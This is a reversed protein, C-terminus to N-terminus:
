IKSHYHRNATHKHPGHATHKSRYLYTYVLIYKFLLFFDAWIYPQGPFIINPFEWVMEYWVSHIRKRARLKRWLVFYLFTIFSRKSMKFSTSDLPINMWVPLATQWNILPNRKKRCACFSFFHTGDWTYLIITTSVFGNFFIKKDTEGENNSRSELWGCLCAIPNKV